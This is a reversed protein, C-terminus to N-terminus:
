ISFFCKSNLEMDKNDIVNDDVKLLQFLESVDINTHNENIQHFTYDSITNTIKLYMSCVKPNIYRPTRKRNM